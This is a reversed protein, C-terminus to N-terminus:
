AGYAARQRVVGQRDEDGAVTHDPTIAAQCTVGARVPEVGLAPQQLQLAHGNDAFFQTLNRARPRTQPDENKQILIPRWSTPGIVTTNKRTKKAMRPSPAKKRILRFDRGALGQRKNRKRPTKLTASGKKRTEQLSFCMVEPIADMKFEICGIVM